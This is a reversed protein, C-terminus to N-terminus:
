LDPEVLTKNLFKKRGYKGQAGGRCNKGRPEVILGRKGPTASLGKGVGEGGASSPLGAGPQVSGVKRFKPICFLPLLGGGGFKVDYIGNGSRSGGRSVPPTEL